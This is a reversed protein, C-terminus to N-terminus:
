RGKRSLRGFNYGPDGPMIASGFGLRGGLSADAEIVKGVLGM